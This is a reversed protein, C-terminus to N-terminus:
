VSENMGTESVIPLFLRFITRGEHVEVDFKGGMHKILRVSIHLGRGRGDGHLLREQDEESIRGTNIIEIVGWPDKQYSQISLEGGEEPIANTANSLLNDLVRDIHLPFCRIPLCAWSGQEVLRVKERGLRQLTGANILFRKRLREVLDIIEEKGEGHLTMALDQIRSTEQIVINLYRDIKESESPFLGQQLMARIKKSFAAAAIAPNRFDHLIDSMKELGLGKMLEKGFFTLIDIEEKSFREHQDKSDFTLFYKVTGSVRLPVYLVSHISQGELFQKLPHPILESKRPDKIFIYNYRVTENEFDGLPVNLNVVANIYPEEVSFIKGIGHEAEPYGAELIVQESNEMVSFLACRQIRIINVLVPIVLNFVDKMKIGERKGLKLFIQEVIQDKIQNVRRLDNIRRRVIAFRRLIEERAIEVIGAVEESSLQIGKGRLREVFSAVLRQDGTSRSL